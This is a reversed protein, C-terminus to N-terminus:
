YTCSYYKIYITNKQKERKESIIFNYKKLINNIFIDKKSESFIKLHNIQKPISPVNKM